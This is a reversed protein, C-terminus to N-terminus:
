LYNGKDGYDFDEIRQLENQKKEIVFMTEKNLICHKEESSLKGVYIFKKSSCGEFMDGMVNVMVPKYLCNEDVPKLKRSTRPTNAKIYNRLTVKSNNPIESDSVMKGAESFHDLEHQRYKEVYANFDIFYMTPTIGQPIDMTSEFCQLRFVFNRNHTDCLRDFGTKNLLEKLRPKLEELIFNFVDNANKCESM